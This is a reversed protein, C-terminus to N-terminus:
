GLIAARRVALPALDRVIAEHGDGIEWGLDALTVVVSGVRAVVLYTNRIILNGDYDEIQEALRILLSERGAIGQDLITWRGTADGCVGDAGIAQRLQRLYRSSGDGRYVGLDELIVTPRTDAVPYLATIAGSARRQGLAPYGGRPACPQAPRLYPRLEDDAPNTPSGGLDEPQLFAEGPITALRVVGAEPAAAEAAYAPAPSATAVLGALTVLVIGRRRLRSPGVPSKSEVSM